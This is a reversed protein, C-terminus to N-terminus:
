SATERLTVDGAVVTHRAGEADRLLLAGNEDIGTAVGRVTRNGSTATVERGNVASLPTWAASLDGASATESTAEAYARMVAALVHATVQNLPLEGGQVARLSTARKRIEAPYRAPNSNLNIGIGFVISSLRDADMRAETLMGAFKRGDCELDNPWKIRLAASPVFGALARCIHIGAWLTFRQLRRPPQHPEFIASLYLNDPSESFWGRGLRGRGLTQCSAAVAFPTARGYSLQREAESNTSDIAPFYLVETDVGLGDLYYRALAPHFTGPEELLRYGRNRIAEFVFGKERLKELRSWVAPRSIGLQKALFTGSVFADGADLLAKLIRFEGEPARAQRYPSDPPESM